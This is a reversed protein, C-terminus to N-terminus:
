SPLNEFFKARVAPGSDTAYAEGYVGEDASSLLGRMNTTLQQVNLILSTVSTELGQVSTRLEQVDALLEPDAPPAAAM